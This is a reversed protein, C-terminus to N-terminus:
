NSPREDLNPRIGTSISMEFRLRDIDPKKEWFNDPYYAIHRIGTALVIEMQELLDKEPVWQRARWDYTQLKFVTKEVGKPVAVAAAALNRLWSTPHNAKEMQPYAMVVTYDYTTLFRRYNQAFWTEAELQTLLRAYINRAFLADPRHRRVAQAIANTFDILRETKFTRWQRALAADTTIGAATIHKRINKEFAAVAVPSFDEEDSLFADDQFLIGSILAGEALDAYLGSIRHLVDESFPSLRLYGQPEQPVGNLRQVRHQRNFDNDTFEYSLVPLWAFVKMGRVKLQHTIYGFIDARVPLFRNHFYVEAANGNGDPDAFAQLFVTNINLQVLREIQKDINRYTQEISHESYLLDLDIQVARITPQAPTERNIDHIFDIITKPIVLYRNYCTATKVDARLLNKEDLAFSIDFGFQKATELAIATYYGYPWVIAAPKRNLHKLFLQEQQTFDQTMRQRYAEQSEISQDPGGLYTRVGVAAGESDQPTYRIGKHSDYTHSALTVLPNRSLEKLQEWNLLPEPLGIPPANEIWKGVIALMSPFGYHGLIPVVFDAYSRYADDFTLMVAKAPLPKEGRRAAILDALAVPHYGHTHLYEMQQAFQSQSITYGDNKIVTPQVSHYCLITVQETDVAADAHGSFPAVGILGILGTIAILSKIKNILAMLIEM